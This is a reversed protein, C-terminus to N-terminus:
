LVSSVRLASLLALLPSRCRKLRGGRTCFDYGYGYRIADPNAGATHVESGPKPVAAYVGRLTCAMSKPAQGDIDVSTDLSYFFLAADHAVNRAEIVTSTATATQYGLSSDTLLAIAKVCADDGVAVSPEGSAADVAVGSATTNWMDFARAYAAEYGSEDGTLRTVQSLVELGEWTTTDIVGAANAREQVSAYAFGGLRPFVTAVGDALALVAFSDAYTLTSVLHKAADRTMGIKSIM